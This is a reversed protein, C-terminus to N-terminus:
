YETVRANGNASAWIGTVVGCYTPQPFEYMTNTALTVTFTSTSAAGSGFRLYLAATSDNYIMRKTAAGNAAFITVSTASSAVSTVNANATGRPSTGM